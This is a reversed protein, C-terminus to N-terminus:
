RAESAKMKSLANSSIHEAEDLCTEVLPMTLWLDMTSSSHDVSHQAEIKWAIIIRIMNLATVLDGIPWTCNDSGLGLGISEHRQPSLAHMSPYQANM